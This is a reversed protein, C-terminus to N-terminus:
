AEEEANTENGGKAAHDPVAPPLIRTRLLDLAVVDVACCCQCSLDRVGLTADTARHEISTCEDTAARNMPRGCACSRADSEVSHLSKESM